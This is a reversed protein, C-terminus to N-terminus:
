RRTKKQPVAKKPIAKKPIVKPPAVVQPETIEDRTTEQVSPKVIPRALVTGEPTVIHTITGTASDSSLETEGFRKLTEPLIKAINNFDTQGIQAYDCSKANEIAIITAKLNILLEEANEPIPTNQQEAEKIKKEFELVPRKKDKLQRKAEQICRKEQDKGKIRVNGILKGSTTSQSDGVLSVVVIPADVFAEAYDMGLPSLLFAILPVFFSM